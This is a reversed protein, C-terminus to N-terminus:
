LCSILETKKRAVITFHQAILNVMPLKSLYYDVIFANSHGIINGIMNRAMMNMLEHHDFFIIDFGSDGLLTMIEKKTYRRDHHWRGILHNLIEVSGYKFPLNWIFLMGNYKLVRNIESLAEYESVGYEHSHELVGSSLVADVQHDPLNIRRSDTPGHGYLVKNVLLKEHWYTAYYENKDHLYCIIEPYFIEVLKAVHGYQGGWDLLISNPDDIYKRMISIYYAYQIIAGMRDIHRCYIRAESSPASLVTNIIKDITPKCRIYTDKFSRINM